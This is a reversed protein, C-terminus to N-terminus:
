SFVTLVNEENFLIIVFLKLLPSDFVLLTAELLPLIVTFVLLSFLNAFFITLHDIINIKEKNNIYANYLSLIGNANKHPIIMISAKKLLMISLIYKIEFLTNAANKTNKIINKYLIIIVNIKLM